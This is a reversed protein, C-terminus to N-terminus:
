STVCTFTTNSSAKVMILPVLHDLFKGINKQASGKYGGIIRSNHEQTM